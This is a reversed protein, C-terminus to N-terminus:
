IFLGFWISINAYAEGCAFILKMGLKIKVWEELDIQAHRVM